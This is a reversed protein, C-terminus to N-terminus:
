KELSRGPVHSLGFIEVQMDTLTRLSPIDLVSGDDDEKDGEWSGM